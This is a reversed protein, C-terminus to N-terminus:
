PRAPGRLRVPPGPGALRAGRGGGEIRPISELRRGLVVRRAARAFAARAPRHEHRDREDGPPAGASETGHLVVVPTGDYGSEAVLKRAKDLDPKPWGINTFFPSTCMYFSPCNKYLKPDSVYARAFKDQDIMYSIAQRIKPDAYNPDYGVQTTFPQNTFPPARDLLNRIGMVIRTNRLGSYRAQLDWIEYSSM